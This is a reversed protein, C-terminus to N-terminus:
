NKMPINSTDTLVEQFDPTVDFRKDNIEVETGGLRKAPYGNWM